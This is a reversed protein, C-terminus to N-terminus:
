LNNQNKWQKIYDLLFEAIQDTNNLDLFPLSALQARDSTIADTAIAVFGKEHSALSAKNLAARYVEIKPISELKFGEILAIDLEDTHLNSILSALTINEERDPTEVMLAWRKQSGVIVQSAGAMRLEYSDKGPVDVEFGHHAHKVLGLRLGRATLNPILKKLLTTKGSGSHAAFGIVPIGLETLTLRMEAQRLDDKTNINMFADAQDSFDVEVCHHQAYWRDIKRQDDALFKELSPLLKQDILAFVPQMRKGDNVVAIDAQTKMLTERLRPALDKPIFPSDCPVVLLHTSTIQQMATAIGALPGAFSGVEDSFVTAGFGEYVKHNRNANVLIGEVQDTLRDIVHEVLCRRKLHVLGKDDGGMRRALGGALIVANISISQKCADSQTM